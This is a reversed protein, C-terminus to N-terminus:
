IERVLTWGGKQFTAAVRKTELYGVSQDKLFLSAEDVTVKVIYLIERNRSPDALYYTVRLNTDCFYGEQGDLDEDSLFLRGTAEEEILYKYENLFEEVAGTNTVVKLGEVDISNALLYDASGEDNDDDVM